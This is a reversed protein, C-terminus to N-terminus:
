KDSLTSTSGKDAVKTSSSLSSLPTSLPASLSEIENQDETNDNKEINDNNLDIVEDNSEENDEPPLIENYNVTNIETVLSERAHLPVQPDNKYTTKTSKKTNNQYVMSSTLNLVILVLCILLIQWRRRPSSFHKKISLRM